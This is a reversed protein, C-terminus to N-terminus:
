EHFGIGLLKERLVQNETSMLIRFPIDFCDSFTAYEEGLHEEIFDYITTSQYPAWTNEDLKCDLKSFLERVKLSPVYSFRKLNEAELVKNRILERFVFNTGIGLTAKLVPVTMGTGDLSTSTGPSLFDDLNELFRESSWLLEVYDDLDRSFRYIPLLQLWNRYQEKTLSYDLYEDIVKFWANANAKDPVAFVDWWGNDEFWKVASRHQVEKTRGITQCSGLYLLKLWAKRTEIKDLDDKIISDWDFVGQPYMKKEYEPLLEAKNLQWWDYIRMLSDEASLSSNGESKLQEDVRSNIEADTVMRVNRFLDIQKKNWGWHKLHQVDITFVWNPKRELKIKDALYEGLEGDVLYKCILQQKNTDSTVEARCVWGYLISLNYPTIDRRCLELFETYDRYQSSTIYEAPAFGIVKSEDSNREDRFILSEKVSRHSGNEVLINLEGLKARFQDVQEQTAKHKKLETEFNSNFVDHLKEAAPPSLYRDKLTQEILEGLDLTIVEEGLALLSKGIEFGVIKKAELLESMVPLKEIHISMNNLLEGARYSVSRLSVLRPKSGKMGSPLAEYSRYFSLIGGESTFLKNTYSEHSDADDGEIARINSTNGGQLTNWISEWFTSLELDDSLDWDAKVASWDSKCQLYLQSLFSSLDRGLSEFLGSNKESSIALQNRGIDVDFSANIAFGINFEGMLPSLNWLKPLNRNLAKFGKNGLGFVFSGSSKNLVVVKVDAIRKKTPICVRGLSVDDFLASTKPQWNFLKDSIEITHIRKSFIALLGAQKTFRSLVENSNIGSRLVLSIITPRLGGELMKDKALGFLAEHETSVSPLLGGEIQVALRGSVIHPTDSVLLCSKFGLGFKGTVGDDKDSQNRVIM